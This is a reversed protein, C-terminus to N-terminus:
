EELRRAGGFNHVHSVLHEGGALHLAFGPPQPALALRGPDRFDLVAQLYTSPCTFVLCPGLMSVAGRHVHGAVIRRVQPHRAILDELAARDTSPLGIADLERVGTLLPPHHMAVITPTDADAALQAELWALREPDLRGEERGPLTTDCAILRLPGLPTVYQLPEEGPAPDGFSARLQDRDDHNGALVHVPMPLPALLERTREYAPTTPTDVLDGSVLVADPLTDLALVREVAEALARAADGDGPGVRVHPDSLQALLFSV